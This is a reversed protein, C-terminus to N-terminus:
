ATASQAEGLRRLAQRDIKDTGTKPLSDLFLIERPYKHPMLAQKVYGKLEDSLTQDPRVGNAPAVWAKITWRRDDLEIAQVCSEHVKPHENLALEIELPYVWQGSVKVLEDARGKFFYFGDEDRVFRDGTYLWGDNMTEATKEPRNWYYEAGSLGRISMVGEEGTAAEEGDATLLKIAYGPVARGASGAKRWQEKNSLYIHLMETSGLGEVIDLGSLAKWAAAIDSSLVEAASICLRLSSLDASKAAADRALATYLTPLGFLITPKHDSVQRFIEQPDPRGAMLVSAAGISFPFTISNGFGYAFFVKPVSFCVDDPRIKLVLKAYTAATYAADEHRHVVGKPRGTSGSSYMWFAMDRRKSPYEPLENPAEAWSRQGGALLITRCPTGATQTAMFHGRYANSAIAATAGSDELFFRVLEPTSLTNILVPVLGARMAGMIAAAYAPEDDMFLLVRAGPELGAALLSNGIRAAEHALEQYTWTGSDSIVATKAAKDALNDWLLRSANYQEPLRFGVSDALAAISPSETM